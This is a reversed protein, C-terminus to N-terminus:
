KGFDVFRDNLHYRNAAHWGPKRYGREVYVIWGKEELRKTSRIITSRKFGTEWQLTRLSPFCVGDSNIHTALAIFVLLDTAKVQHLHERINVWLKVYIHGEGSRMIADVM